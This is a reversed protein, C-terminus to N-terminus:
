PSVEGRGDESAPELLGPLPALTMWGEDLDVEPVAARTFPVMVAGGANLAVDLVAGAGFDQVDVVRGIASAMGAVVGAPRVELGILDAFYFEEEAPQPLASRHVYLLRGKLAEAQTRDQIGDIRARLGRAGHGTITLRFLPRGAEDRVVGYAAVAEPVSTFSQLLVEGCVGHAGTIVGICVLAEAPAL